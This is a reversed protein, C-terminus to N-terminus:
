WLVLTIGKYSILILVSKSPFSATSKLIAMIIEWSYFIDRKKDGGCHLTKICHCPACKLVCNGLEWQAELFLPTYILVPQPAVPISEATHLLILDKLIFSCSCVLSYSLCLPLLQERGVWKKCVGFYNYPTFYAQRPTTPCVLSRGTWWM